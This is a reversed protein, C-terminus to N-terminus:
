AAFGHRKEADNPQRELEEQRQDNMASIPAVRLTHSPTINVSGAAGENNSIEVRLVFEPHPGLKKPIYYLAGILVVLGGFLACSLNILILSSISVPQNDAAHSSSNFDHVRVDIVAPQVFPDPTHGFQADGTAHGGVPLDHDAEADIDNSVSNTRADFLPQDSNDTEAPRAIDPVETPIHRVGENSTWGGPSTAKEGAPETLSQAAESGLPDDEASEGDTDPQNAAIVDLERLLREPTLETLDWTAPIDAARAALNRAKAIDGQITAQKAEDLLRRAATRPPTQMSNDTTPPRSETTRSGRQTEIGKAVLAAPLKIIGQPGNASDNDVHDGDRITRVEAVKLIAAKDSASQGLAVTAAFWVLTGLVATGIPTTSRTCHIEARERSSIRVPSM